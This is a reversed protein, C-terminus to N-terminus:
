TSYYIQLKDKDVSTQGKDTFLTDVQLHWELTQPSSWRVYETM